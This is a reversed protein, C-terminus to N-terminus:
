LSELKKILEKSIKENSFNNLDKIVVVNWGEKAWVASYDSMEGCLLAVKKEPWAWEAALEENENTLEFNLIPPNLKEKQLIRGLVKLSEITYNLIELWETNPTPDNNLFVTPEDNLDGLCKWMVNPVFQLLDAYWWFHQWATKIEREEDISLSHGSKLSIRDDILLTHSIDGKLTFLWNFYGNHSKIVPDLANRQYYAIILKQLENAIKSVYNETPYQLLCKLLGFPSSISLKLNQNQKYRSDLYAFVIKTLEENVYPLHLFDKRISMESPFTIQIYDNSLLLDQRKAIDQSISNIKGRHYNFGDIYIAIKKLNKFAAGKAEIIFDPRQEASIGDKLRLTKQASLLWTINENGPISFQAIESGISSIEKWSGSEEKVINKLNAVFTQELQSEYIEDMDLVDLSRIIERKEASDLIARLLELGRNRSIKDSEYQQQYSRICRYCGDSGIGFIEEKGCECDRLGIEAQRFVDIIGEALKGDEGKENFLAKLFGTGGPVADMLVLYYRTFIRDPDPIAQLSILIHAPTGKFKLRLGFRICAELTPLRELTVKPLILRIAESELERYLYANEFGYELSKTISKRAANEVKQKHRCFSTHYSLLKAEKVSQPLVSGCDTCIKFGEPMVKTQHFQVGNNETVLEHLYGGNVERVKLKELFEIGFGTAINGITPSASNKTSDFLETTHYFGRQREEDQDGSFGKTSDIVSIAGSKHFPLFKRKQSLEAFSNSQNSLYGCQPCKDPIHKSESLQDLLYGCNGCISKEEFLDHDGKRIQLRQIEFQKKGIYFQNWPALEKIAASAPRFLTYTKTTVEPSDDSGKKQNYITGEFLVGREPFAYNPLVGENTWLELTTMRLMEAKRGQLHKLERNLENKQEETLDTRKLSNNISEINKVLLQNRSLIDSQIEHFLNQIKELSCDQKLKLRTEDSINTFLVSFQQFLQSHDKSLWLMFRGFQSEPDNWEELWRKVIGPIEDWQKTKTAQDMCFGIFQRSLVSPADLWCGPANIKGKLLAMPRAYFFLDHPRQNVIALILASGTSRGARGVRQLYNATTPPVSCLLTASLDGIDIGMELTSTCALINPEDALKGKIFGDEIEERDKTALLGTHEEAVVRRVLNSRYRDNYYKQRDSLHSEIYFGEKAHFELSPHNIWLEKLHSPVLLNKKTKSCKLLTVDTTIYTHETTVLYYEQNSQGELKILLKTELSQDVFLFKLQSKENEGIGEIQSLNLAKFMWQDFWNKYQFESFIPLSEKQKTQVRSLFQPIRHGKKTWFASKSYERMFPHDVAGISKCKNLIGYIWLRVDAKEIKRFLPSIQELRLHIREVTKDVFDEVWFLTSSGSWDLSRGQFYSSAYEQLISWNLQKVISNFLTSPLEKEKSVKYKQWEVMDEWDPPLLTAFANKKGLTPNMSEATELLLKTLAEFSVKGNKDTLSKTILTRLTFLFSRSSFFGARHSADQVSDTFALLKPNENLPNGFLEDIGVSALTASQTGIFM